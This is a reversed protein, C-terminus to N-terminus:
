AASTADEETEAPPFGTESADAADDAPADAWPDTPRPDAAPTPAWPETQAAQERRGVNGVTKNFATVGCSLDHGVTIADIELSTVEIGQKNVFSRQDLRGHVVVPDGRHLSRQCHEGLTRWASVTYWQTRGEVWENRTRNFRRPTCGIRFSTVTVGGADRQAPENGLWGQVTVMTENAM